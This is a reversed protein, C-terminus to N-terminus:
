LLYLKAQNVECVIHYMSTNGNAPLSQMDIKNFQVLETRNLLNKAV